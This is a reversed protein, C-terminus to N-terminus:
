VVLGSLISIALLAILIYEIMVELTLTRDRHHHLLAGIIYLIALLILSELQLIPVKRFYWMGFAFIVGLPFFYHSFSIHLRKM